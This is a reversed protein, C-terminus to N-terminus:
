AAQRDLLIFVGQGAGFKVNPPMGMRFIGLLRLRLSWPSDSSNPKGSLLSPPHNISSVCGAARLVRGPSQAGRPSLVNLFSSMHLELGTLYPVKELTCEPSRWTKQDTQFTVSITPLVAARKGRSSKLFDKLRPPGCRDSLHSPCSSKSLGELTSMRLDAQRM